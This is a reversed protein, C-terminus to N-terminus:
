GPPGGPPAPPPPAPLPPREYEAVPPPPWVIAPNGLPPPAPPPVASGAQWAEIPRPPQRQRFLVALFVLAGVLILLYYLEEAYPSWVLSAFSLADHLGHLLGVVILTGQSYRVAFAFGLGAFFLEAFAVGSAWGYTTGYYLHVAAFLLSTAVAPLLWRSPDRRLWYGFVWGRFITEEVIGIVFSFGVWFWPDARAEQLPPSLKTLQAVAAPDVALLVAVVAFATVLGLISMAGYWRLGEVTARGPNAVYRTLPGTGVLLLFALIPIGYVILTGTAASGYLPSVVPIGHGLFYPSLIAIVTIAVAALYSPVPASADAPSPNRPDALSEM